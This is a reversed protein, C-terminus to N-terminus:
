GQTVMREIRQLGEVLHLSEVFDLKLVRYDEELFIYRERLVRYGEELVRYGEQVFLLKVM